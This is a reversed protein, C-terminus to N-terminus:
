RPFSVPDRRDRAARWRWVVTVAFLTVLPAVQAATAARSRAFQGTLDISTSWNSGEILEITTRGDARQLVLPYTDGVSGYLWRLTKADAPMRGHLRYTAAAALYEVSYPRIERGDVWLVLRDILVAGLAALREDRAEPTLRPPVLQGAFSELRLLLWNPDHSIDLVFSGDGAFRLVVRTREDDHALAVAATALWLAIAAAAFGRM